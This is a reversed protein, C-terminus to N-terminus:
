TTITNGTVQLTHEINGTTKLSNTDIANCKVDIVSNTFSGSSSKLLIGYSNQGIDLNDMDVYSDEIYLVARGGGQSGCDADAGTFDSNRVEFTSLIGAGAGYARVAAADYGQGDIGLEFESDTLL